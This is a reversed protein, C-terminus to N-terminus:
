SRDENLNELDLFKPIFNKYRADNEFYYGSPNCVIRVGNKRTDISDHTHGHIWVQPAFPAELVFDMASAFGGNCDTGFRPHCLAYSPMHHTMVVTVGNFPKKLHEVLQARQKAHLEQMDEVDFIRNGMRIVRFDRLYKGVQTREWGDKGGDAWMTGFIIRVNELEECGVDLRSYATHRLDDGLLIEGWEALQHGYFEHNGPIYYVRQFRKDAEVLFALLQQQDSSIDGALALVSEADRPDQPVFHELLFSAAKGSYQELHLDSVVRIYRPKM